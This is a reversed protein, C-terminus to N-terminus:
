GRAIPHLELWFNHESQLDLEIDFGIDRAATFYSNGPNGRTKSIVLSCSLPRRAGYDEVMTEGLLSWFNSDRHHYGLIPAAESYYLTTKAVKLTELLVTVKHYRVEKLITERLLDFSNELM